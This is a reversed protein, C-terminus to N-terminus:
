VMLKMVGNYPSQHLLLHQSLQFYTETGHVAHLVFGCYMFVHLLMSQFHPLTRINTFLCLMAFNYESLFCCSCSASQAIGAVIQNLIM